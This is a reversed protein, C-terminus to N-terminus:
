RARRLISFSEPDHKKYYQAVKAQLVNIDYNEYELFRKSPKPSILYNSDRRIFNAACLISVMENLEQRPISGFIKRMSLELGDQTIVGFINVMEALIFLRDKKSMKKYPMFHFPDRQRRKSTFRMLRKVVLDFRPNLSSRDLLITPRFDSYHDVAAIPGLSLFSDNQRKDSNVILTQKRINHDHSFYGLEAFSGTSEPFIVISDFVIAILSELKALNTFQPSGYSFLEKLADEARFIAIKSKSSNVFRIFRPRLDAKKNGGCVFAVHTRLAYFIKKKSFLFHVEGLLKNSSPQGLSSSILLLGRVQPTAIEGFHSIV